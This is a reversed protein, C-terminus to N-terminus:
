AAAAKDHNGFAAGGVGWVKRKARLLQAKLSGAPYHPCHYSTAHRSAWPRKAELSGPGLDFCTDGRAASDRFMEALLATGAGASAFEPDYGSRLGFVQGQHHYNYGFAIVRGNLRLAAVDLMGLRAADAHCDIIFQVISPSSLTTGTGAKGQWSREAVDLVDNLLPWDPDGGGRTAAAPRHRQFEVAGMQALRKDARRVNNRFKGSREAFYADWGEALDVLATQKWPLYAAPLGAFRMTAQVRGADPGHRDVCRLDIVDWQRRMRRLKQFVAILTATPQPGIPGYFSGWDALPYTLTRLPGLRTEEQRVVLPVIGLWDRGDRVAFVLLEQDAAFHRWYRTLWERTQFFSAGRTQGHLANWPLALNELAEIDRFLHVASM